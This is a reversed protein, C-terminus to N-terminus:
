INLVFQAIIQTISARNNQRHYYPFIHEFRLVFEGIFDYAHEGSNGLCLRCNITGFKQWFLLQGGLFLQLGDM